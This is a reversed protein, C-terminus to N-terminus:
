NFCRIYEKHQMLALEYDPKGLNATTLGNVMSKSPTRVIAKTFM